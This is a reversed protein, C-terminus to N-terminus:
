HPDPDLAKETRKRMVGAIRGVHHRELAALAMRQVASAADARLLMPESAAAVLCRRAALPSSSRAARRRRRGPHLRSGPRDARGVGDAIRLDGIVRRSMRSM